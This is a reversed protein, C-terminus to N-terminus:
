NRISQHFSSQCDKGGSTFNLYQINTDENHNENTFLSSLRSEDNESFVGCEGGIRQIEFKHEENEERKSIIDQNSLLADSEMKEHNNFELNTMLNNKCAVPLSLYYDESNQRAHHHRGGSHQEASLLFNNNLPSPVRNQIFSYDKSQRVNDQKSGINIAGANSRSHTYQSSWAESQHHNQHSSKMDNLMLASSQSLLDLEEEEKQM